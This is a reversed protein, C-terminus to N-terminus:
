NCTLCARIGDHKNLVISAFLSNESILIGLEIQLIYHNTYIVRRKFLKRVYGVMFM